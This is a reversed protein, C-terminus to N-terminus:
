KVLVLATAVMAATETRLRTTGISVGICQHQYAYDIEEETFDGEPGILLLMTAASDVSHLPVKNPSSCHAICNVQQTYKALCQEFTVSEAITPLTYQNSQLMASVAIQQLRHPKVFVKETRKTIIPVVAHVGMEVVKELMWELRALNKTPAVALVLKTGVTPLAHHVQHISYAAYKKEVSQVTAQAWYGQGNTIHVANGMKLRLVQIAHKYNAESFNATTNQLPMDAEYFLYKSM